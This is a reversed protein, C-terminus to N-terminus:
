YILESAAGAVTYYGSHWCSSILVWFAASAKITPIIVIIITTQKTHTGKKICPADHKCDLFYKYYNYRNNVFM